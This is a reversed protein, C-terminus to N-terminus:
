QEGRGYHTKITGDPQITRPNGNDDMMFPFLDPTWRDPDDWLEREGARHRFPLPRTVDGRVARAIGIGYAFNAISRQNYHLRDLEAAVGQELTSTAGTEAGRMPQDDIDRYPDILRQPWGDKLGWNRTLRSCATGGGTIEVALAHVSRLNSSAADFNRGAAASINRIAGENKLSWETLHQQRNHLELCWVTAGLAWLGLVVIAVPQWHKRIM